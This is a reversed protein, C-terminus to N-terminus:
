VPCFALSSKKKTRTTWILSTSWYMQPLVSPLRLIAGCTLGFLVQAPNRPPIAEAVSSLKGAPKGDRRYVTHFVESSPDQSSRVSTVGRQSYVAAYMGPQDTIRQPPTGDPKLGPTGSTFVWRLNPQVLMGDSYKCIRQAVGVRTLPQHSM